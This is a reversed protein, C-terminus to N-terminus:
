ESNDELGTGPEKVMVVKRAPWWRAQGGREIRVWNDHITVEGDYDEGNELRVTANELTRAM